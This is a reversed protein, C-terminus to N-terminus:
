GEDVFHSDINTIILQVQCRQNNILLTGLWARAEDESHEVDLALESVMKKFMPSQEALDPMLMDEPDYDPHTFNDM